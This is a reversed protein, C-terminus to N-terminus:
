IAWAGSRPYKVESSCCGASLYSTLSQGGERHSQFVNRGSQSGNSVITNVVMARGAFLM